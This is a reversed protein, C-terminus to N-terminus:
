RVKLPKMMEREERRWLQNIADLLVNERTIEIVFYGKLLDSLKEKVRVAGRGMMGTKPDAFVMQDLLRSALVTDEYEKFMRVYNITRFCSVQGYLNFVFPYALLHAPNELM